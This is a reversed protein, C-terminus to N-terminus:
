GRPAEDDSEIEAVSGRRAFAAWLNFGIMAVLAVCWFVLPAAARM